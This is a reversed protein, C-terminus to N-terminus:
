HSHSFFSRVRGRVAGRYTPSEICSWVRGLYEITFVAISLVEFANLYAGYRSNISKVSSLSVEIVNLIIIVILAIDFIRSAVDGPKAVDLIRWVRQRISMGKM